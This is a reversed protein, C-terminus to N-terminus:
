GPLRHHTLDNWVRVVPAWLGVAQLVGVCTALVVVINLIARISGAMPVYTNILWLLIGVVVLGLVVALIVKIYHILPMAFVEYTM